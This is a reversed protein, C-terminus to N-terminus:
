EHIVEGKEIKTILKDLIEYVLPLGSRDDIYVNADELRQYCNNTSLYFDM